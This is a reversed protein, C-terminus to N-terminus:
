WGFGDSRPGSKLLCEELSSNFLKKLIWVMSQHSPRHSTSCHAYCRQQRFTEFSSLNSCETKGYFLPTLILKLEFM